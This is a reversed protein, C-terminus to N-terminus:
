EKILPNKEKIKRYEVPSMGTAQKFVNSFYSYNAYGIRAAVDTISLPTTMLLRKGERIRCDQIYASPSVGYKQKFTRSLHEQSIFFEKAIHQCSIDEKYHAEIFERVQETTTMNIKEDNEPPKEKAARKKTILTLARRVEEYLEDFFVPKLLYNLCGLQIAAQAYKFDAHSTLFINETDLNCERVWQLLDLGSGGPMEIDCIMIDIPHEEFKKQASKLNKATFVQDIGLEDWKIASSLLDLTLTEDDVILLSFSSM